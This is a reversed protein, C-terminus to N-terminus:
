YFASIFFRIVNAKLTYLPETGPIFGSSGDIRGTADRFNGYDFQMHDVQLNVTTRRFFPVWRQDLEYFVGLGVSYSDFESLEKDRALFEQANDFPFLDAYFDAQTQTYGRLGVQFRWNSNYEHLYRVEINRSEIGWNDSFNRLEGRISAKYPLHYITRLAIADSNRTNPYVENALRVTDGDLFHVSRYPNNLQEGQDLSKEASIGMMWKPSLVQTFGFRFRDHTVPIYDNIDAGRTGVLDDGHSYGMSLTTMDSFFTQSANFSITEAEYDNESSTTGSVSLSMKDYLYEVGLSYETREETYESAGSTVVDISASTVQDVYYNAYVSVSDKFNKRVLVSPGTIEIGGGDYSHYMIDAREEPLTAAQGSLATFVLALLSILRAIQKSRFGGINIVAVVAEQAVKQVM